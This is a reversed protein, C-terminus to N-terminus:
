TTDIMVVIEVHDIRPSPVAHRHILFIPRTSLAGEMISVVPSTEAMSSGKSLVNFLDHSGNIGGGRTYGRDYTGLLLVSSSVCPM